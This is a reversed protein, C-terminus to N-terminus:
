INDKRYINIKEKIDDCFYQHLNIWLFGRTICVFHMSNGYRTHSVVCLM